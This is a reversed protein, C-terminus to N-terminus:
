PRAELMFEVRAQLDAQVDDLDRGADVREVLPMAEALELFATRVREHFGGQRAEIRDATRAQRRRAAVEPAVDLLFVRDPMCDGHAQRALAWLEERPIGPADGGEFVMGQYVLTSLFSREVVVVVGDALAPRVQRAVLEARAASFLWAETRPTLSGTDPSLLLARLAEGVPTSGPERLHLTRTGRRGLWACLREAQVSKGCGDGGELVVYVM